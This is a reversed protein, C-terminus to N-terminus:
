RGSRRPCPLPARPRRLGVRGTRAPARTGDGPGAPRNKPGVIAVLNLVRAPVYAESKAHQLTLLERLHAEIAGPTAALDARYFGSTVRLIPSGLITADWGQGGAGVGLFTMERGDPAIASIKVLGTLVGTWYDLRDGRHCIYSRSSYTRERIGRHAFELEGDDLDGSWCFRKRIKRAQFEFPPHPM